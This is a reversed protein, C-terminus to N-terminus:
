PVDQGRAASFLSYWEVRTLQAAVAAADACARIREPNTTGIVPSIDAPHRMLWGLVIAEPAVGYQGALTAVMASTVREAPGADGTRAGSYVGRALSGWAQLAVGHAAGYELTGLPFDYAIGQDGNVGIGAEVWDRKRLSLELQNVVIPLELHRQLTAMQVGAMNSVGIQRILGEAHLETLAEAVLEPEMLPDPRHLLLTDVWEVQLRDLSGRVRDLIAQKDLNYHVGLGSEGVRIGCKTQIQISARLTQDGALIEGFIAEAKGSRYIDAHDFVRIGLDLAATVARQATRLDERSYPSPDWSGGFGMCGYVLEQTRATAM